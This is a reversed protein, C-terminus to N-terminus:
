SKEEPTDDKKNFGYIPPIVKSYGEVFKKFDPNEDLLDNLIEKDVSESMGDVMISQIKEDYDEDNKDPQRGEWFTPMLAIVQEYDKSGPEPGEVVADIFEQPPLYNHEDIYHSLLTPSAYVKGDKSVVRIEDSSSHNEQCFECFHMGRTKFFRNKEFKKLRDLFGEPVEGTTFENDKQLWGVNLEQESYHRYNYPTLDSYHSM